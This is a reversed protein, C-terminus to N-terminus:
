FFLHFLYRKQGGFASLGTLKV